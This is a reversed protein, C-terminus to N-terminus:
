RDQQLITCSISKDAWLLIIYSALLVKRVASAVLGTM